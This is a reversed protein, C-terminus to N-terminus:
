LTQWSILFLNDDTDNTESVGSSSIQRKFIICSGRGEVKRDIQNYIFTINALLTYFTLLIATFHSWGFFTNICDTKKYVRQYQDCANKWVFDYKEQENYILCSNLVNSIKQLEFKIIDICLLYYFLRNACIFVPVYYNLRAITNNHQTAFLFSIMFRILHAGFKFIYTREFTGWEKSENFDGVINWFIEQAAKRSFSEIIIMWYTSIVAGYFFVFSFFNLDRKFKSIQYVTLVFRVGSQTFYTLLVLHMTLISYKM